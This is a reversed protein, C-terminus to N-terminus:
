VFVTKCKHCRDHGKLLCRRLREELVKKKYLIFGKRIDGAPNLNLWQLESSLETPASLSFISCSYGGSTKSSFIEWTYFTNVCLNVKKDVIKYLQVITVILFVNFLPRGQCRKKKANWHFRTILFFYFFDRGESLWTMIFCHLWADRVSPQPWHWGCISLDTPSIVALRPGASQGGGRPCQAARRGDPEASPAM